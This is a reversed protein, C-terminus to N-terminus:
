LFLAWVPKCHLPLPAQRGLGTRSYGIGHFDSGSSALFDYQECFAALQGIQSAAMWGSVVELGQGGALKFKKLLENLKTRTLRYKDPHALVAVGKSQLIVAVAKEVSIWEVPAYGPRGRRLYQKFADDSDRAFREAVLVQAFHPRTINDDDAM